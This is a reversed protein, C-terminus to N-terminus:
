PNFVFRIVSIEYMVGGAKVGVEPITTPTVYSIGASFSIEKTLDTEFKISYFPINITEKSSAFINGFSISMSLLDRKGVEPIVSEKQILSIKVGVSTFINNPGSGRTPSSVFTKTSNNFGEYLFLTGFSILFRMKEEFLMKTLIRLDIDYYTATKSVNNTENNVSLSAGGIGLDFWFLKQKPPPPPAPPVINTLECSWVINMTEADFIRLNLYVYKPTYFIEGEMLGDLRLKQAINKIEETSQFGSSFTITDDKAVIKIPKIEPSYVLNFNMGSEKSLSSFTAEIKGQIQKLLPQSVQTRDARLSYFAIRKINNPLTKIKEPLNKLAVDLMQLMKDETLKEEVVTTSVETTYYQSWVVSLNALSLVLVIVSIKSKM